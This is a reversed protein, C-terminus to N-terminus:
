VSITSRETSQSRRGAPRLSRISSEILQYPTEEVVQRAIAELEVYSISEEMRDSLGAPRLDCDVSLDVILTQGLVREEPFVGHYGYAEIGEVHIRDTM